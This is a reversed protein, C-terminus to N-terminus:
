EWLFFSKLQISLFPSTWLLHLYFFLKLWPSFDLSTISQYITCVPKDSVTLPSLQALVSLILVCWMQYVLCPSSSPTTLILVPSWSPWFILMLATYFTSIWCLLQTCRFLLPGRVQYSYLHKTYGLLVLKLIRTHSAFPSFDFIIKVCSIVGLMLLILSTLLLTLNSFIPSIECMDSHPRLLGDTSLASTTLIPLATPFVWQSTVSLIFPASGRPIWLLVLVTTLLVQPTVKM